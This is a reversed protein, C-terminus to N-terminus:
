MGVTYGRSYVLRKVHGTAFGTSLNGLCIKRGRKRPYWVCRVLRQDTSSPSSTHTISWTHPCSPQINALNNKQTNISWSDLDMFECFFFWCSWYSAMKFSCAQDISSKDYPKRPIKRTPCAPYDWAPLIPGDQGSPYGIVACTKIRKARERLWGYYFTSCLSEIKFGGSSKRHSGNRSKPYWTSAM